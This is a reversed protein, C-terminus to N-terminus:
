DEGRKNMEFLEGMSQIEPSANGMAKYYTDLEEVGWGAASLLKQSLSMDPRLQQLLYSAMKPPMRGEPFM